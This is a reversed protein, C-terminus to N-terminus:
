VGSVDRSGNNSGLGFRVQFAPAANELALHWTCGM